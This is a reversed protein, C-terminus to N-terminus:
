HTHSISVIYHLVAPKVWFRWLNTFLLHGKILVKSGICFHSGKLEEKTRPIWFLRVLRTRSLLNKVIKTEFFSTLSAIKFVFLLIYFPLWKQMPDIYLSNTEANQWQRLDRWTMMVMVVITLLSPRKVTRNWLPTSTLDSKTRITLKNVFLGLIASWWADLVHQIILTSIYYSDHLYRRIFKWWM